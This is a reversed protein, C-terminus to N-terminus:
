LHGSAWASGRGVGDIVNEISPNPASYQEFSLGVVRREFTHQQLGHLSDRKAHQCIGRHGSVPMENYPRVGTTLKRSEHMPEGASVGLSPMGDMLRGPSAWHVLSSILRDCDFVVSMDKANTSINFPVCETGTQHWTGLVPTPRTKPPSAIKASIVEQVIPGYRLCVIPNFMDILGLGLRFQLRHSPRNSATCWKSAIVPSRFSCPQQADIGLKASSPTRLIM